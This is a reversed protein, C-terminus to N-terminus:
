GEAMDKLQASVAGAAGQPQSAEIWHISRQGRLWTMQRKAYRRTDRQMLALADPMPISGDLAKFLHRYGISRHVAPSSEYGSERLRAAEALIGAELMLKCRADIRRYLEDRSLSLATQIGLYKSGRREKRWESIPRGTAIYVSLARAIRYKDNPHMARAAEPDCRALQHWAAQLGIRDITEYTARLSKEEAPPALPVSDLLARFYLGTGGVLIPLRGRSVIQDIIPEALERYAGASCTEKPELIGYLHHVVGGREEITPQASGIEMGRFLQRSDCCVIEGRLERAVLVAVSSKGSCTAGTIALVTPNGM